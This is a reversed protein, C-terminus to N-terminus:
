PLVVVKVPFAAFNAGDAAIMQVLVDDTRICLYAM